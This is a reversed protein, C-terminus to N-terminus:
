VIDNKSVIMGTYARYMATEDKACSVFVPKRTDAGAKEKEGKGHKKTIYGVHIGTLATRRLKQQMVALPDSEFVDLDGAEDQLKLMATWIPRIEQDHLVGRMSRNVGEIKRTTDYNAASYVAMNDCVRELREVHNALQHYFAAAKEKPRDGGM